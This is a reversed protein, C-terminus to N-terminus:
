RVRETVVKLRKMLENLSQVSVVEYDTGQWSITYKELIAPLSGDVEDFFFLDVIRTSMEGFQGSREAVESEQHTAELDQIVNTGTVDNVDVIEARTFHRRRALRSGISM